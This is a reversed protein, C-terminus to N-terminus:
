VWHRLQQFLWKFYAVAEPDTHHPTWLYRGWGVQGLAYTGVALQGIAVQGVALQGLALYLALALQGVACWGTSAQGLGLGIGLALQGVAIVGFSAQGIALGGAALRGVAIVGKAVIRKGTEPCIGFTYHVLPLGMYTRHSKFEAFRNGNPYVFRRWVGFRTQEVPFDVAEFLMNKMSRM